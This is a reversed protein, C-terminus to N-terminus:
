VSGSTIMLTRGADEFTEIVWNDVANIIGIYTPTIKTLEIFCSLDHATIPEKDEEERRTNTSEYDAKIVRIEESQETLNQESSMANVLRLLHRARWDQQNIYALFRFVKKTESEGINLLLTRKSKAVECFHPLGHGSSVRELVPELVDLGRGALANNLEVVSEDLKEKVFERLACRNIM